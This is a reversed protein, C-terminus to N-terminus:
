AVDSMEETEEACATEQAETRRGARAFAADLTDPKVGIREAATKRDANRETRMIFDADEALAARDHKLGDRRQWDQAPGAAPDDITDDDWAAPLPWGAALGEARAMAARRAGLPTSEDPPADWLEDYLAAVAAATTVRPQEAGRLIRGLSDAHMGLRAALERRSRGTAILSQLRRVTGAAATLSPRPRSLQPTLRVALLAAATDPRLRRTARQGKGTGLLRRVTSASVGSAAAIRRPSLGLARVHERAPGAGTWPDWQGYAILRTRHRARSAWSEQCAPCGATFRPHGCERAPTVAPAASTM